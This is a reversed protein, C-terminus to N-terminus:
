RLEVDFIVLDRLVEHVNAMNERIQVKFLHLQECCHINTIEKLWSLSYKIYDFIFM